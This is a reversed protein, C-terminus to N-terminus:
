FCHWNVVNTAGNASTVTLTTSSLGVACGAAAIAATAGVPSCVCIAGATVTDTCVSPSAGDLTCSGSSVGEPLLLPGLVRFAGNILGYGADIGATTGIQASGVVPGVVQLQGNIRAVGADLVAVKLTGTNTNGSSTVVGAGSVAFVETGATRVSLIPQGGDRSNYGGIIVDPNTSTRSQSGMLSLPVSSTYPQVIALGGDPWASQWVTVTNGLTVPQGAQGVCASGPGCTYAVPAQAEAVVSLLLLPLLHKM